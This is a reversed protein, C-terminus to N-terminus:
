MGRYRIALLENTLVIDARQGFQLGVDTLLEELTVNEVDISVFLPLRPEPGQIAFKLGRAAALRSLLKSADNQYHRITIKGAKLNSEPAKPDASRTFAPATQSRSLSDDLERGIEAAPSVVAVPQPTTACGSALTAALLASLMAVGIPRISRLGSSVSVLPRSGLFWAGELRKQM